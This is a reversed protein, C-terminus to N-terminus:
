IMGRDCDLPVYQSNSSPQNSKKIPFVSKWGNLISNNICAEIDQGSAKLDVLKTVFIKIAQDTMPQKRAKRDLIFKEVLDAEIEDPINVGLFVAKEKTNTEKTNTEKKHQQRKQVSKNDNKVIKDDNKVIKEDNKVINKSNKQQRKQCDKWESVSPNVGIKNGDILVINKSILASKIRSINTLHIGTIQSLQNSSIWDVKKQFRYTKSIIAFVVQYERASLKVPPNALTNTLTHALRDYGNEIDAKVVAKREELNIIEANQQM